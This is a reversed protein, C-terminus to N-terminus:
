TNLYIYHVLASNTTTPARQLSYWKPEQSSVYKLDAYSDYQAAKEIRCCYVTAWYCKVHIFLKKQVDTKLESQSTPAGVVITKYKVNCM